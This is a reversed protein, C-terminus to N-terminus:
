CGSSPLPLAVELCMWKSLPAPMSYRTHPTYLVPVIRSLDCSLM